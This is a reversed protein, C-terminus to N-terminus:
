AMRIKYTMRNSYNGKHLELRPSVLYHFLSFHLPLFFNSLALSLHLAAIVGIQLFICKVNAILPISVNRHQGNNNNNRETLHNQLLFPLNFSYIYRYLVCYVCCM